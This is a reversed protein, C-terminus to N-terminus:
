HNSMIRVVEEYFRAAMENQKELQEAIKNLAEAQLKVVAMLEDHSEM